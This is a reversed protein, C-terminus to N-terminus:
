FWTNRKYEDYKEGFKERLVREEKKARILQMPILIAFVLLFIPRQSFLIIGAIFLSGFIYIPNRIKSYLGRTVLDRAEARATFSKGLEWHAIAWLMLAPIGIAAGVIQMPSWTQVGQRAAMFGAATLVLLVLVVHKFTNM